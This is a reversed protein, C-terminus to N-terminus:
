EGWRVVVLFVIFGRKDDIFFTRWLDIPQGELHKKDFSVNAGAKRGRGPLSVATLIFFSLLARDVLNTSKHTGVKKRKKEKRKVAHQFFQTKRQEERYLGTLVSHM